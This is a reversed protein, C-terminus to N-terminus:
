RLYCDVVKPDGVEEFREVVGDVKWQPKSRWMARRGELKFDM